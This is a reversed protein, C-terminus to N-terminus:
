TYLKNCSTRTRPAYPIKAHQTSSSIYINRLTYLSLPTASVLAANDYFDLYVFMFPSCCCLLYAAKIPILDVNISRFSILMLIFLIHFLFLFFFYFQTRTALHEDTCATGDGYPMPIDCTLELSEINKYVSHSFVIVQLVRGHGRLM